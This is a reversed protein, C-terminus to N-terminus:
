SFNAMGSLSSLMGLLTSQPCSGFFDACSAPVQVWAFHGSVGLFLRAVLGALVGVLAVLSAVVLLCVRFCLGLWSFTLRFPLRAHMYVGCFVDCVSLIAVGRFSVMCVSLALTLLGSIGLVYLISTPFLLFHVQLMFSWFPGASSTFVGLRWLPAVVLLSVHGFPFWLSGPPSLWCILSVVIFNLLFYDIGSICCSDCGLVRLFGSLPGQPIGCTRCGGFSVLVPM